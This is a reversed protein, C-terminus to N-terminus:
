DGEEDNLASFLVSLVLEYKTQWMLDVSEAIEEVHPQIKWGRDEWQVKSNGVKM